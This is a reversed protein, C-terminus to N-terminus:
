SCCVTAISLLLIALPLALIRVVCLYLLHLCCISVSVCLFSPHVFVSCLHLCLPSLCAIFLLLFFVSDRASPHLFSCWARPIMLIIAVYVFMHMLLVLGVFCESCLHLGKGADAVDFDLSLPTSRSLSLISHMDAIFM